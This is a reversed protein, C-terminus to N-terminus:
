FPRVDFARRLTMVPGDGGRAGELFSPEERELRQIVRDAMAEVRHAELDDARRLLSEVLAVDEVQWGKPVRRLVPEETARDHVVLTGALRDGIRRSLPDLIMLPVGVLLDASRLLNRVILAEVSATGGGRSVVRLGVFKKGPTRGRMAIETGAFYAWDLLFAGCLYLVVRWAWGLGLSGLPGRCVIMWVIQLVGQILGDLFAALVRSGVGAVPLTLPANDLGLVTEVAIRPTSGDRTALAGGRPAAHANTSVVSPLRVSAL